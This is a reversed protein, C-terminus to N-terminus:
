RMGSIVDLAFPGVAAGIIVAAVIVAVLRVGRHRVTTAEGDTVADDPTNVKPGEGNWAEDGPAEGNPREGAYADLFERAEAVLDDPVVLTIGSHAGMQALEPHLAGADDARVRAPIGAADLLQRAMEAETRSGFRGVTQDM